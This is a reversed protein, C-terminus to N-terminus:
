AALGMREALAHLKRDYTWLRAPETLLSAALLHVDVYGIGAGMLQRKAILQLCEDDDAVIAHPLQQMFGIVAARQRLHGCALEGLVFPHMLVQGAELLAALRPEGRRLHEVWVSSDVLIM